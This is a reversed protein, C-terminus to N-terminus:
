DLFPFPALKHIKQLLADQGLALIESFTDEFDITENIVLHIGDQHIGTTRLKGAKESACSGDLDESRLYGANGRREHRPFIEFQWHDIRTLGFRDGHWAFDVDGYCGGVGFPM